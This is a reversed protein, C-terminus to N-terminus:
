KRVKNAGFMKVFLFLYLTNRRLNSQLQQCLLRIRTIRTKMTSQARYPFAGQETGIYITINLRLLSKHELTRTVTRLNYSNSFKILTASLIMSSCQLKSGCM